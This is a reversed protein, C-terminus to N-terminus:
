ARRRTGSALKELAQLLEEADDARIQVVDAGDALGQRLQRRVESKLLKTVVAKTGIAQGEARVKKPQAQGAAEELVALVDRGSEEAIRLARLSAELSAKRNAVLDVLQQPAKAFELLSRVHRLPRGVISAIEIDMCGAQHLGDYVRAALYPRMGALAMRFEALVQVPVTAGASLADRVTQYPLTKM